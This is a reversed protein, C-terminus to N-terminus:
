QETTYSSVTIAISGSTIKNYLITTAIRIKKKTKSQKEM